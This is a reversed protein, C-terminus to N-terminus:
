SQYAPRAVIQDISCRLCRRLLMNEPECFLLLGGEGLTDFGQHLSLFPIGNAVVILLLIDLFSVGHVHIASTSFLNPSHRFSLYAM